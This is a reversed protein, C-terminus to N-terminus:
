AGMREVLSVGGPVDGSLLDAAYAAAGIFGADPGLQALRVPPTQERGREALLAALRQETPETLAAGVASVGGGLLFLDPDLLMAVQSLGYGLWHGLEAFDEGTAAPHGLATGSAYRDLCGRSGCGCPRGDPVVTMHGAEGAWGHAGSVLQGNVLLGGGIGTGVTLMAVNDVGRAAGFRFEAWLAANADNLVVARVDAREEIWDALRAEKLALNAANAVSRHDTSVYGPVAVGVTTGGDADLEGLLQAVAAAIGLAGEPTALQERALINGKSDIVGAAIKTGGIDIGVLRQSM